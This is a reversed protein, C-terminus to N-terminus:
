LVKKQQKAGFYLRQGEVCLDRSDKWHNNTGSQNMDLAFVRKLYIRGTDLMEPDVRGDDELSFLVLASSLYVDPSTFSLLRSAPLRGNRRVRLRFSQYDYFQFALNAVNVLVSDRIGLRALYFSLYERFFLWRMMRRSEKCLKMWDEDPSVGLFKSLFFRLVLGLTRRTEIWTEMPKQIISSFDSALKMRTHSRVDEPLNPVNVNLLIDKAQGHIAVQEVLRKIFKTFEKSSGLLGPNVFDFISWLDGLRNEIPTGTLAFRASAKLGKAIRSQRADPNKIAQAEDLIALRWQAAAIWPMRLLSSYSTIM